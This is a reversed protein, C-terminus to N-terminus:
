VSGKKMEEALVRGKLGYVAGMGESALASIRKRFDPIPFPEEKAEPAKEVKSDPPPPAPPVPPKLAELRAVEDRLRANEKRLDDTAPAPDKRPKEVEKGRLLFIAASAVVVGALFGILVAGLTAQKM